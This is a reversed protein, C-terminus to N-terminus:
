ECLIVQAPNIAQYRGKNATIEFAEPVKDIGHLQHTITPKLNVRGGAVLRVTHELHELTSIDPFVYRLSRERLTDVPFDISGGFWSVGVITGGSRTCDIAQMLSRSGALGQKPSGGACEFTIDAGNGGTAARIAEVADEKAANIVIDAGLTKAMACAEDRVDVSIIRGAGSVRAIQMCELGMSGQGLLAVTDGIRIDATEVSAISDSLSQLCAGEANSIRDDLLTLAIEPLLAYESFCGPLQFGIIPGKRCLTARGNLCLPCEQCPLKARAAVRDGPKFRTVGPGVEMVRAAYEHGFLQVPAETELRKKIRDFALTPIGFALQAETVSPQVVLIQALVHGPRLAPVPIDDLRMDNFGYFRWAKM